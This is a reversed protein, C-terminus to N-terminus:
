PTPRSPLCVAPLDDGPRAFGACVKLLLDNAGREAITCRVGDGPFPRVSLGAAAASTAFPVAAEGLPLWVFNAQSDPVQWGQEALGSLVRERESVITDVRALLEDSAALSAVAAEQAPGSVGFPVATKRLAEAVADHAVAYGVRLGALGYAKSFTRLVAVNTRGRYLDLGDPVDADRVFEAYAEDVVVLVDPPVADLFAVMEDTRVAPGTPNNPTCVLVLRTSSTVAAAMAPLDHRGDPTLRVPVARAGGTGVVIPYAEFSRWAFVVDDGEGAVAQLIQGLVGVSGTGTVVHEPPVQLREAIAGVLQSAFMDPYRNMSAAARSVVDVVSPLPPYPNENSSIKYTPGAGGHGAPRGPVYSPVKDLAQRIRPTV